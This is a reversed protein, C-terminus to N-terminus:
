VDALHSDDGLVGFIDDSYEGKLVNQEIEKAQADTLLGISERNVAGPDKGNNWKKMLDFVQGYQASSTISNFILDARKASITQPPEAKKRRPAAKKKTTAPQRKRGNGNTAKKPPLSTTKSVRRLEVEEPEPDGMKATTGYPDDENVGLDTILAQGDPVADRVREEVEPSPEIRAGVAHGDDLHAARIANHSNIAASLQKYLFKVSTKRCMPDTWMKWVTDWGASARAKNIYEQNIHLIQPPGDPYIAKSYAFDPMDGPKPMKKPDLNPEHYVEETTGHIIRFVEGPYVLHTEINRVRRDRCALDILGRYDPMMTAQITKTEKQFRPVMYARQLRGVELNIMAGEVVSRVVSVYDSEALDKGSKTPGTVARTFGHIAAQVYQQTLSGDDSLTKQITTSLADDTLMARILTVNEQPTLKNGDRYKHLLTKIDSM